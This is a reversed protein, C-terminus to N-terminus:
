PLTPSSLIGHKRIPKTSLETIVDGLNYPYLQNSGIYVDKIRGEPGNSGGHVHGHLHYSGNHMGNWEYLPYHCLVIKSNSHKIELYDQMSHFHKRLVQKNDHNGLILHKTGHMQDLLNSASPKWVVDGLFYVLDDPQVLSNHKTIIENNMSNIDAEWKGDVESGFKTRYTEFKTINNHSLHHDSAIWINM